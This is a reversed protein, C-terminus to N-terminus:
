LVAQELTSGGDFHKMVSISARREAISQGRVNVQKWQARHAHHTALLGLVDGLRVASSDTCQDVLSQFATLAESTKGSKYLRSVGLRWLQWVSQFHLM